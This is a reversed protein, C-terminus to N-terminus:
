QEEMRRSFALAMSCTLIRTTMTTTIITTISAIRTTAIAIVGTVVTAGMMRAIASPIM